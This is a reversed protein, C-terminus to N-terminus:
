AAQKLLEPHSQILSFGFYLIIIILIIVVAIPILYILAAKKKSMKHIEHTGIILLFLKYFTGIFGILPLGKFLVYPTSSYAYIKYTDEYKGKAGFILLYVHLFGASVFSWFIVFIWGLFSLPILVSAKVMEKVSSFLFFSSLAIYFPFFLYYCIIGIITGILSIVSYYVFAEKLGKQRKLKKFFKSPEILVLKADLFIKNFDM